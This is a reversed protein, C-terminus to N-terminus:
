GKNDLSTFFRSHNFRIAPRSPTIIPMKQAESTVLEKRLTLGDGSAIYVTSHPVVLCVVVIDWRSTTGDSNIQLLGRGHEIFLKHDLYETVTLVKFFGKENIDATGTIEQHKLEDM